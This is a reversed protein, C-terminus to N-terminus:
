LPGGIWSILPADARQYLPHVPTGDANTGLCMLAVGQARALAAVRDQRGFLKGGGGWGAVLLPAHRFAVRLWNDNDRGVPDPHTRLARPDTSRLAFLNYITMAGYGWACSYGLCRRLTPDLVSEDATSPNLMIWALSPREHDWVRTLRYHWLLGPGFDATASLFQIPAPTM